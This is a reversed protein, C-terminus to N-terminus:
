VTEYEPVDQWDRGGSNSTFKPTGSSDAVIVNGDPDQDLAYSEGEVADGVKKTFSVGSSDIKKVVVINGQVGIALRTRGISILQPMTVEPGFIPAPEGYDSTDSPYSVKALTRGMDKSEYEWYGDDQLVGYIRTGDPLILISPSTAKDIWVRSFGGLGGWTHGFHIRDLGLKSTAFEREGLPGYKIEAMRFDGFTYRFQWEPRKQAGLGWSDMVVHLKLGPPFAVNYIPSYWTDNVYAVVDTYSSDGGTEMYGQEAYPTGGLAYSWSPNDPNIYPAREDPTFNDDIPETTLWTAGVAAATATTVVKGGSFVLATGSPIPLGLAHVPVLTAGASAGPPAVTVSIATVSANVVTTLITEKSFYWTFLQLGFFGLSFLSIEIEVEQEFWVTGSDTVLQMKWQGTGTKSGMGFGLLPVQWSIYHRYQFQFINKDSSLVGSSPM